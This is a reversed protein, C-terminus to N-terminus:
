ENAKNFNNLPVFIDQLWFNINKISHRLGDENYLVLFNEIDLLYPSEIIIQEILTKENQDLLPNKLDMVKFNRELMERDFVVQSYISHEKYKTSSINIIDELSLVKEKLEPFKQLLTKPGLNKIGRIKDSNDGILTKYLIFNEPLIEFKNKITKPTYFERETPRFVTINDSVLQIFDKDSSVIFCKSDYKETMYQTIHAIIDDAEAKDISLVKVPLCKLYHILRSIQDIKSDHEEELNDFVDWNTMRTTNRGSKYEPIIHKRNISSGMGDFVIYISTPSIQNILSGLSRLFGALGGIHVGNENVYNLIAFNRLFLNMGDIIMVRDNIDFTSHNNTEEQNNINDLIKFWDKKGM